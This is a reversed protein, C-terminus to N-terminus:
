EKKEEEKPEVKKEEMKPMPPGAPTPVFDILRAGTDRYDPQIIGRLALLRAKAVPDPETAARDLLLQKQPASIMIGRLQIHKILADTAQARLPPEANSLAYSALDQQAERSSLRGVADIAFMALEPNQMAQRLSAEADAYPYGTLEGMAMKRLWEIAAKANAKKDAALVKPDQFSVIQHAQEAFAEGSFMEPVVRVRKYGKTLRALRAEIEPYQLVATALPEQLVRGDKSIVGYQMIKWYVEAVKLIEEPVRLEYRAVAKALRPTVERTNAFPPENVAIHGKKPDNRLAAMRNARDLLDLSLRSKELDILFESEPPFMPILPTTLFVLYELRDIVDASVIVGGAEVAKKLLGLRSNFRTGPLDRFYDDTLRQANILDVHEEAAVLCALRGLLTIPHATTAQDPSAVIMLPLNKTRLDARVQGLFDPLMPSPLHHDVVIVDVNAKAQLRLMMERSTRLIEANYGANRVVTALAEARVRDFDGIVARPKANDDPPDAQLYGSLIKVILAARQHVHPGPVKLLADVAAFQVRADPYDLARMLLSSQITSTGDPKDTPRAAKVETRDGIAQIVAVALSTRKEALAVVLLESLLTYPATALIAYLNPSTKVLPADAGARGFHKDIALTLFTKQADAFNPQIELAWRCYRLGYYEEADSYSMPTLVPKTGDWKWVQAPEPTGFRAKHELFMRAYQTLRYQPLKREPLRDFSPDEDLVSKLLENAKKRLLEPNGPLPASYYWLLPTLDTEARSSFTYFDTRKRLSNLLEIKIPVEKMDLAAVLPPVVSFEFYPLAELIAARQEASAEGRLLDLLVPVADVGSRILEKLAYAAEEPTETLNKAYKKIRDPNSLENKLAVTMLRILTEVNARAEKEVEPAKSWREVNRLRLFAITGYKSEIEILEKELPPKDVLGKLHKAAIDFKGVNIEFSMARWYEMPTEPNKYFESDDGRSTSLGIVSAALLSLLLGHKM